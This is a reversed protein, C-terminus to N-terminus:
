VSATWDPIRVSPVLTFNGSLLNDSTLSFSDSESIAASFEVQMKPVVVSYVSASLASAPGDGDLDRAVTAKGDSGIAEVIYGDSGAKIVQGPQWSFSPQTGAFTVAGTDKAIAVTVGSQTQALLSEAKTSVRWLGSEGSDAIARIRRNAPHQPNYVSLTVAVTGLGRFGTVQVQGQFHSIENVAAAGGSLSVDGVGPVQLWDSGDQVHLEADRGPLAIAM